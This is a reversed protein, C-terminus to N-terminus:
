PTLPIGLNKCEKDVHFLVTNYILQCPGNAYKKQLKRLRRVLRTLNDPPTKM